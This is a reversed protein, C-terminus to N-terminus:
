VEETEETNENEKKEFVVLLFLVIAACTVYMDAVNFIPFNIIPVYIFDIVYKRLIRDIGNGVAGAIMFVLTWCILAKDPKNLMRMLVVILAISVVVSLIGLALTNGSFIGFAAGTNGGELYRLEFIDRIVTFPKNGQLFIQACVKTLQDIVVLVVILAISLIKKM